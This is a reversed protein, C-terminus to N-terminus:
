KKKHCEKCNTPGKENLDHCPICVMHAFDKGWGEIKGIEYRHCNFCNGMKKNTQHNWHKFNVPTGGMDFTITEPGKDVSALDTKQASLSIGCLLLFFLFALVVNKKM